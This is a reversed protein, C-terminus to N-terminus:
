QDLRASSPDRMIEQLQKVIAAGGLHAHVAPYGEISLQKRIQQVTLCSGERALEFAREITSKRV